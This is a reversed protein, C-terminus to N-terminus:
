KIGLESYYRLIQKDVLYAQEAYKVSPGHKVSYHDFSMFKDKYSYSLINDANGRELSLRYKLHDSANDLVFIEKGFDKSLLMAVVVADHLEPNELNLLKIWEHVSQQHSLVENEKAYVVQIPKTNQYGFYVGLLFITVFFFHKWYNKM